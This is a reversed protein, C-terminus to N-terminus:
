LLPYQAVSSHSVMVQEANWKGGVRIALGGSPDAGSGGMNEQAGAPVPKVIVYLHM